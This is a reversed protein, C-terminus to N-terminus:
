GVIVYLTNPDPPNLADFQAQTLSVWQGEPGTPGAPGTAGTAGTAGAPGTAGTAGAPGQPGEPGEPGEPGAPGAAGTQGTAGAPGTPGAPGTAGAPGAPGEPGAPGPPGAEGGGNGGGDTANPTFVWSGDALPGAQGLLTGALDYVSFPGATIHRLAGLSVLLQRVDALENPNLETDTTTTVQGEQQPDAM